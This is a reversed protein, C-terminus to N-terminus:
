NIASRLVLYDFPLTTMACCSLETVLCRVPWHLCCTFMSQRCRRSSALTWGTDSGRWGLMQSHNPIRRRERERRRSRRAKAYPMALTALSFLLSRWLALVSKVQSFLRLSRRRCEPSVQCVKRTTRTGGAGGVSHTDSTWEPRGSM